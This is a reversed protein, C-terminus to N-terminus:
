FSFGFKLDRVAAHFTHLPKLKVTQNGNEEITKIGRMFNASVKSGRTRKEAFNRTSVM